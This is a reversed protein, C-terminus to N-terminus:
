INASQQLMFQKCQMAILNKIVEKKNKKAKLEDVLPFNNNIEILSRIFNM